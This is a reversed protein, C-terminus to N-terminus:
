KAGGGGSMDIRKQREVALVRRMEAIQAKIEEVSATDSVGMDARRTPNSTAPPMAGDQARCM